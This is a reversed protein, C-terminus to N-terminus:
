GGKGGERKWEDRNTVKWGTADIAIVAPEKLDGLRLKIPVKMRKERRFITTYDPVRELGLLDAFRRALGETQRYPLNSYARLVAIASIAVDGYVKPRGRKLRGPKEAFFSGVLDTDFIVDVERVLRDNYSSWDVVM